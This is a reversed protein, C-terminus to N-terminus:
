IKKGAPGVNVQAIFSFFLGSLRAHDQFILSIIKIDAVSRIKFPRDMRQIGNQIFHVTGPQRDDFGPFEIFAM